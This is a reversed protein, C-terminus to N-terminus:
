IGYNPGSEPSRAATDRLEDDLRAKTETDEEFRLGAAHAPRRIMGDRSITEGSM